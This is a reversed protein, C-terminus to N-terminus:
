NSFYIWTIISILIFIGLLAIQLLNNRNLFKKDKTVGYKHDLVTNATSLKESFLGSRGIQLYREQRAHKLDNGHQNSLINLCEEIADGTDQIVKLHHRHAGGLPEPIIKDVVDIKFMDNATLKLAAATEVKKSTDKWLISSCAEPSIVSYVSNELMLVNNGTGIAVAGGSGGEGIIIAVIPVGLSLCCETSKAIAEAQGRQEAGVGPYAGPTDVFSIVPLDFQEALKMLRQAKRYGEPRPMGFNHEIRSSTDHGKEHGIVLVSKGRFKGFGGIIAKDDSFSRDGALPFFDEILNEIYNKTKPRDPHRAILTRQWPSINSFIKQYENNIDKEVNSIEELLSESPADENLSKLEIIRADLSEIPKEFDLYTNM